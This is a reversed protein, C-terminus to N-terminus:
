EGETRVPYLVGKIFNTLLRQVYQPLDYNGDYVCWDMIAGKVVVCMDKTVEECTRGDLYFIGEKDAEQVYVFTIEMVRNYIKETNLSKNHSSFFSRCFDLGFDSTYKAYWTYFSVIKDMPNQKQEQSRVYVEFDNGAMEYYFSLIQDKSNFYNYFNGTSTGAAQCVERVTFNDYGKNEMLQLAAQFLKKKTNLAQLERSRYTKEQNEM